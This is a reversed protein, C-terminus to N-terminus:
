VIHARIEGGGWHSVAQSVAGAVADAVDKSGGPRHDVATGQVLELGKCERLLPEYCYWRLRGENLLEKLTEYHEMTRDVSVLQANIGKHRLIQISDRSQYGDYSVQAINFGRRVLALVLERVGALRIEGGQPPLIQLMFDVVVRPEEDQRRDQECHAMAIGCADKSLALDVHIYRPLQDTPEYGDRLTGSEDLPPALRRDIARELVMADPFFPEFAESPKAALDRLARQENRNFEPFYEVPVHLGACEFTDGCYKEPPHVDWTALRSKYIKPNTAAEALKRELFDDRHRPSSIMILLGQDLFRSRIRRQVAHYIEEASDRQGTATELLWSAEDIVAGLLNYGLPYTEASNGSIVAINHDFRLERSLVTPEHHQKFWPSRNIKGLIEHFVVRQAQETTPAMNMFSITSDQGLGFHRQPSRLCLTRYLMYIIALSAAYSKGAGIGWCLAAETYGDEFVEELVELIRPYVEAGLDLYAPETVFETIRVPQQEYEPDPNM